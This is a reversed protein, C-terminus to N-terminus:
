EKLTKLIGAMVDFLTVADANDLFGGFQPVDEGYLAKWAELPLDDIYISSVGEVDEAKMYQRIKEWREEPAAQLVPVGEGFYLQVIRVNLPFGRSGGTVFLLRCDIDDRAKIRKYLTAIPGVYKSYVRDNYDLHVKGDNLIGDVDSIILVKEM